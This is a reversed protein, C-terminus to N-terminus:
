ANSHPSFGDVTTITSLKHYLYLLSFIVHIPHAAFPHGLWSSSGMEGRATPMVTGGLDGEM